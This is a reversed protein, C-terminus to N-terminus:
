AGIAAWDIALGAAGTLVLATLAAAMYGERRMADRTSPAWYGYAWYGLPHRCSECYAEFEMVSWAEDSCRVLDVAHTGGCAPCARPADDNAFCRTLNRQAPILLLNFLLWFITTLIM